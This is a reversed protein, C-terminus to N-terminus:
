NNYILNNSSSEMYIGYYNNSCNNGTLTNNSSDYLWISHDNNSCNNNTLTNNSSDYLWISHDNNSCNTNTINCHEASDLYIGAKYSGPATFGSINVYDVMVNFVHDGADTARVAVVDAGDGILTLQKNVVVNENYTGADVTITHEDLTEPDDIAAQITSFNEGTDINHVTGETSGAIVTYVYTRGNGNINNQPAAVVFDNNGDGNVDGAFGVHMGFGDNTGGADNSWAGAIVNDYGDNNVDGNICQPTPHLRDDPSEGNITTILTADTIATATGILVCILVCIGIFIGKKNGM